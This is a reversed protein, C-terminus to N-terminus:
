TSVVDSSWEAVSVGILVDRCCGVGNTLRLM